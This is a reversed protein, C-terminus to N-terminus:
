VVDPVSRKRWRLSTIGYILAANLGGCFFPFMLFNLTATPIWGFLPQFLHISDLSFGLGLMLVSWPLTIIVSPIGGENNPDHLGVIYIGAAFLWYLGAIAKRYRRFMPQHVM